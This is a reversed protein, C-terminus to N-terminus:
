ESPKKESKRREISNSYWRLNGMGRHSSVSAVTAKTPTLKM